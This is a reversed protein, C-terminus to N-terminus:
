FASGTGAFAMAGTRAAAQPLKVINPGAEAFLVLAGMTVSGLAGLTGDYKPEKIAATGLQTGRAARARSDRGFAFRGARRIVSSRVEGDRENGETDQGNVLNRMVATRDFVHGLSVVTEIEGEAETFGEAKYFVSLAGDLGSSEQRLLQARLGVSSCMRDTDNSYTAGGRLALPGWLQVEAATAAVAGRRASDYGGNGWAFARAQGVRAPLSFPMFTVDLVLESMPRAVEPSRDEEQAQAIAGLCVLVGAMWITGVIRMM